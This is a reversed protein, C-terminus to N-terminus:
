EIIHDAQLLLTQPITLGLAKSTKLNIVLRLKPKEVAINAPDAGRLLNDVRDALRRYLDILDVGFSMLGGEEAFRTWSFAAPLRRAAIWQMVRRHDSLLITGDRFMAAEIRERGMTVFAADIEEATRVDLMRVRLDLAQAAAEWKRIAVPVGGHETLVAVHTAEPVIAKM